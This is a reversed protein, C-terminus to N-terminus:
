QFKDIYKAQNLEISDLKGFKFNQKIGINLLDVYGNEDPKSFKCKFRGTIEDVIEKSTEKNRCSLLIDDVWSVLEALVNGHEDFKVFFCSVGELEVFGISVLFKAWCLNWMRGAQKM